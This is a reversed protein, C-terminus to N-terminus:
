PRTDAWPAERGLVAARHAFSDLAHARAAALAQSDGGPLGMPGDLEAPSGINAVRGDIMMLALCADCVPDLGALRARSDDRPRFVDGDFRSGYHARGSSGDASFAAACSAGQGCPTASSWAYGRHPKCCLACVANLTAAVRALAQGGSLPDLEALAERRPDQHNHIDRM